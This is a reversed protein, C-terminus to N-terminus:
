LAIIAVILAAISILTTVGWWFWERVRANRASSKIEFYHVCDSKLSVTWFRSFDDHVSKQVIDILGDEKLLYITQVADQETLELESLDNQGIAIQNTKSGSFKKNFFAIMKEENKKIRKNKKM